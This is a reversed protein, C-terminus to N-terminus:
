VNTKYGLIYWNAGADITLLMVLDTGSLTFTPATGHITGLGALNFTASGGNIIKLFLGFAKGTTPPNSTTIDTTTGPVTFGVYNALSLDIAAHGGSVTVANYAEKLSGGLATAGSTPFKAADSVSLTHLDADIADTTTNLVGGWTDLDAGVTPKYWLYNTTQADAM